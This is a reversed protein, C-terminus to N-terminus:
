AADALRGPAMRHEPDFEDKVAEMLAASPVPGRTDTLERVEDPAYVVVARPIGQAQGTEGLRGLEARLDPVLRAVAAAPSEAPVTVDLVGAPGEIAVTVANRRAAAQIAALAAALRGPPFSVRVLTGTDPPPTRLDADFRERRARIEESAVPSLGGHDPADPRRALAPDPLPSPARGAMANLRDSRERFGQRDGEITVILGLPKDPAPWRLDIGIPALWSDSTIEALLREAHGPDTCPLWTGGFVQPLPHLRFSAETILGLTGYSGAFLTVLDQRTVASAFEGSRVITGDARVATIGTLLDGPRGYRYRRTGAAANTAILGGITGTAARFPPMLALHQHAPALAEDLDHLRVGAQVTVALDGPRHEVVRDLRRTDVLLDCSDPPDGWHQLRGAGRPVVTLGLMAAARLLASAEQTSAPAAVYRARCGGVSDAEGAAATDACAAALEHPVPM